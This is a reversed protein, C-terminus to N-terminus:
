YKALSESNSIKNDIVNQADQLIDDGFGEEGLLELAIAQDTVGKELRYPYCIKGNDDRTVYVKYNEFKGDTDKELDTLVMFHTAFIAMSKEYTSLRKAVGYAAAMAEKPNTGTFVEDIIVFSKKNQASLQKVKEILAKARYMEAQFQSEKGTSDAINLYTDIYYFPTFKMETAPAIGFSQALALSIAISKLNTSKGAANPGTLIVNAAGDQKGLEINNTVVKEPNLIPHWFNKINIYPTDQELYEVFCLKANPHNAYKKYLKAISLYADIEGVFKLVDAFNEKVDFMRKFSALIKGKNSWFTPNGKFSGSQMDNLFKATDRNQASFSYTNIVKDITSVQVALLENSNLIQAVSLIGNTVTAVNIMKQQILNAIRNHTTANKFAFYIPFGYICGDILLGVWASPDKAQRGLCRFFGKIKEQNLNVIRDKIGRAVEGTFEWLSRPDQQFLLPDQQFLLHCFYPNNKQLLFVISFVLVAPWTIAATPWGLTTLLSSIEMMIEDKNLFKLAGWKFYVLEFFKNVEENMEKWFWFFDTEASKIEKLKENLVSFLEEDDIFIQIIKQRRKLESVDSTADYFMKQLQIKGMATQTNDLIVSFLHKELDSRGGCYTDLDYFVNKSLVKDKEEEQDCAAFFQYIFKLKEVEGLFPVEIDKFNKAKQARENKKKIEKAEAKEAKEVNALSPLHLAALDKYSSNLLVEENENEIQNDQALLRSTVETTANFILCFLITQAIRQNYRKFTTIFSKM